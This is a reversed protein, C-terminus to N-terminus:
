LMLRDILSLFYLLVYKASKISWLQPSCIFSDSNQGGIPLNVNTRDRHVVGKCTNVNKNEAVILGWYERVDIFIEFNYNGDIRPVLQKVKGAM